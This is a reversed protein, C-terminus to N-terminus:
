RNGVLKPDTFPPRAVLTPMLLDLCRPECAAGGRAREEEPLRHSVSPWGCTCGQVQGAGSCGGGRSVPSTTTGRATSCTCAQGRGGTAAAAAARRRRRSRARATPAPSSSTSRASRRPRVATTAASTPTWTCWPSPCRPPTITSCPPPPPTPPPPCPHTHPPLHSIPPHPPTSSSPKFLPPQGPPRRARAGAGGRGAGRGVLLADCLALAQVHDSEEAMPEVFRRCFTPVDVDAVGQHPRTASRAPPPPDPPVAPTQPELRGTAVHMAARVAAEARGHVREWGWGGGGGGGAGWGVMIFPAFHDQRAQLEASTIFRMLMVIMNSVQTPHPPHTPTPTPHPTRTLYISSLASCPLGLARRARKLAGTASPPALPPRVTDDRFNALLVGADAGQGPVAAGVCIANVQRPTLPTTLAFFTTGRAV